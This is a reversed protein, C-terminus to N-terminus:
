IEYIVALVVDLILNAPNCENVGYKKGDSALWSQVATFNTFIRTHLTASILPIVFPLKRAPYRAGHVRSTAHSAKPFLLLCSGLAHIM